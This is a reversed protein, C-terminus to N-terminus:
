RLGSNFVDLKNHPPQVWGSFDLYCVKAASTTADPPVECLFKVSLDVAYIDIWKGDSHCLFEHDRGPCCLAQAELGAVEMFRPPRIALKIVRDAHVDEQEYGVFV